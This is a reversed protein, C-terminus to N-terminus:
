KCRLLYFLVDLRRNLKNAAELSGSHFNNLNFSRELYVQSDYIWNCNLSPPIRYVNSYFINSAIKYYAEGSPEKINHAAKSYYDNSKKYDKTLGGLGNQYLDGIKIHAQNNGKQSSGYFFLKASTYDAHAVFNGSNLIYGIQYMADADGMMSALYLMEIARKHQSQDNIVYLLYVAKLTFAKLYGYGIAENLLLLSETAPVGIRESNYFLDLSDSRAFDNTRPLNFSNKISNSSNLFSLYSKLYFIDESPNQSFNCKNSTSIIDIVNQIILQKVHQHSTKAVTAKRYFDLAKSNQACLSDLSSLEGRLSMRALNVYAEGRGFEDNSAKTYYKAATKWKEQNAALTADNYIYSGLAIQSDSNGKDASLKFYMKALSVDKPVGFGQDYMYGLMRMSREDGADVSKKYWFLANDYDKHTLGIGSFYYNGLHFYAAPQGGNALDSITKFALFKDHENGSQDLAFFKSLLINEENSITYQNLSKDSNFFKLNNIFTLFNIAFFSIFFIFILGIFIIKYKKTTM